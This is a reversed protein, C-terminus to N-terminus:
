GDAVDDEPEPGSTLDAEVDDIVPAAVVPEAAVALEADVISAEETEAMGVPVDIELGSVAPQQVPSGGGFPGPPPPADPNPGVVGDADDPTPQVLNGLNPSVLQADPRVLEDVRPADVTDEPDMSPRYGGLEPVPISSGDGKPDDWDPDTDWSQRREYEEQHHEIIEANYPDNPDIYGPANPDHDEAEETGDDAEVEADAEASTDSEADEDGSADDGDGEDDEGGSSGSDDSGSGKEAADESEEETGAEATGPAPPPTEAPPPAAEEDTLGLYGALEKAASSFPLADVLAAGWDGATMEGLEAMAQDWAEGLTQEPLNSALADLWAGNAEADASDAPKVMDGVVGMPVGDALVDFTTTDMATFTGDGNPMYMLDSGPGEYFVTGDPAITATGANQTPYSVAGDATSPATWERVPGPGSVETSLLDGAAPDVTRGPMGEVVADLDAPDVGTSADPAANVDDLHEPAEPLDIRDTAAEKQARAESISVDPRELRPERREAM